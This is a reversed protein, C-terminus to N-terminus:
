KTTMTSVQSSFREVATVVDSSEKHIRKMIDGAANAMGAGENVCTMCERMRANAQQALERLQKITDVVQQTADSTSGSLRRVEQSVVVFGRGNEGARAAEISANIALLNTQRAIAEISSVIANIGSSRRDLEDIMQSAHTVIEEAHHIENVTRDIIGTGEITTQQTNSSIRYALQASEAEAQNVQVRQTIDTALKIVKILHGDADRIPNYTAELWREQGNENIRRFQGSMFEGENLRQWFKAYDSSHKFDEDCLCSHHKGILTDRRYGMVSFFNDNADLIYGDMDFAITAMSRNIADLQGRIDQEEAVRRTIDMATKIISTVRGRRNVVPIYSARLWLPTGDKRVRRFRGERFLGQRLDIWMQKYESSNVYDDECLASHPQGILEARSYGLTELMRNNAALIKGNVDFEIIAMAHHMAAATQKLHRSRSFM